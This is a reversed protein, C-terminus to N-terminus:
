AMISLIKGNRQGSPTKEHFSRSRPSILAFAKSKCMPAVLVAGDWFNPKKLHLLIAVTGGMSEGKLFRSKIVNEKRESIRMYHDSCDTVVDEFSPIYGPLGSSRGHGEDDMGYVGYGAKALRTGTGKRRPRLTSKKHKKKDGNQCEITVITVILSSVSIYQGKMSISSEMGYGHCLFVLAKLEGKAPLWRCTFLKMGRLNMVFDEKYRVGEIENVEQRVELDKYASDISDHSPIIEWTSIIHCLEALVNVVLTSPRIDDEINSCEKIQNDSLTGLNWKYGFGLVNVLHWTKSSGYKLLPFSSLTPWRFCPDGRRAVRDDLWSTVDEFVTDINEPLEGYTLSHWMGPYLKFCKDKSSTSEYLLNSVSPYRVEDEEGQVLLFPISVEQRVEPDKYAVDISEHSHIIKWTPIIRYLKTLVNVALTSPRIDDEMLKPSDLDDSGSSKLVAEVITTLCRLSPTSPNNTLFGM